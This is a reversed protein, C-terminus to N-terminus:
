DRYRAPKRIQRKPLNEHGQATDQAQQEQRTSPNDTEDQVIDPIQTNDTNEPIKLLDERYYLKKIQTDGDLNRIKYRDQITENRSKIM